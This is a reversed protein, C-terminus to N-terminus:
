TSEIVFPEWVIVGSSLRHGVRLAHFHSVVLPKDTIKLIREALTGASVGLVNLRTHTKEIDGTTGAHM